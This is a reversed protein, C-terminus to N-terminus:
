GARAVPRDAQGRERGSRWAWVILPVQLPLRAWVAGQYWAPRRGSRLAMSINAPFVGILLGASVAGGLRRTAPAAMLGAGALEALGSVFVLERKRPLMKPVISVFPAPRLLHLVGSVGLLVVLFLTRRSTRGTMPRTM